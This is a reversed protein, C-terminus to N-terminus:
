TSIGNISSIVVILLLVGVYIMEICNGRPTGTKMISLKLRFHLIKYIISSKLLCHNLCRPLIAFLPIGTNTFMDGLFIHSAYGVVFPIFLEKYGLQNLSIYALINVLPFGELVAHMFSRHPLVAIIISVIGWCIHFLSAHTYLLYIGLSCFVIGYLYKRLLRYVKNGIKKFYSDQTFILFIILLSIIGCAFINNLKYQTYLLYFLGIHVMLKVMNNIINIISYILKNSIWFVPNRTNIYANHEDIDPFLSGLIVMVLSMIDYSITGTVHLLKGMIIGLLFYYLIGVKIHTKGMM